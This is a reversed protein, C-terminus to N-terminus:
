VTKPNHFFNVPYKCLINRHDRRDTGYASYFAAFFDAQFASDPLTSYRSDSFFLFLFTIWINKV